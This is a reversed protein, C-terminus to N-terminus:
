GEAAATRLPGLAEEQELVLRRLEARLEKVQARAEEQGSALYALQQQLQQTRNFIGRAVTHTAISEWSPPASGHLRACGTLLEEVSLSGDGDCDLSNFLEQVTCQERGIERFIAPMRHDSEMIQEFEDLTITGSGDCDGAEFAQRLGVLAELWHKRLEREKDDRNGKVQLMTGEVITGVIMNMLGFTFVLVFGLLFVLLLPETLVLPRAVTDWGVLTMLELLSYMSRPVTGFYDEATSIGVQVGDFAGNRGIAHTTFIASIFLGCSMALFIWKISGLAHWYAQLTVLLGRCVRLLKVIRALRALRAIRLIGIVRLGESTGSLTALVWTDAVAFAILAADFWSWWCRLWKHLGKFKMRLAMEVLYIVIFVSDLSTWLAVDAVTRDEPSPELDTQLGIVLTNLLIVVTMTVNLFHGGDGGEGPTGSSLAVIREDLFSVGRRVNGTNSRLRLLVDPQEDEAVQLSFAQPVIGLARCTDSGANGDTSGPTSQRAISRAAAKQGMLMSIPAM